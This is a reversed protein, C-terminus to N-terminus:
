ISCRFICYFINNADYLLAACIYKQKKNRKFFLLYIMRNFECNYSLCFLFHNTKFPQNKKFLINESRTCWNLIKIYKLHNKGM